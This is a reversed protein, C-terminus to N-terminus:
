ENIKLFDFAEKKEELLEKTTIDLKSVSFDDLHLGRVIQWKGNQITVPFSFVLGAPVNYPTNKGEPVYVAMSVWKGPETGHYWDRIHDKIACAASLSSSTGRAAIVAAGRDQVTSVFKSNLYEDNKFAERIKQKTTGKHSDHIEVHGHNVDPYQTKSHNGWIIVNHVRDSPVKLESGILAHARNMDLRTLASFNEKPISPAFQACILCNTNAPNGVVLVRVNKNAYKDLAEGQEKFISANKALLDKREMGQKRPFAGVLIAWDIDQFAVATDSTAIVKDLLSWSSDELEMVIGKLAPLVPEVELLHLIIRRSPGFAQGSCILPLLNTGIQGAAGTVLVRLPRSSRSCEQSTDERKISDRSVSDFIHQTIVSARHFARDM